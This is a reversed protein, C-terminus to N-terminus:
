NRLRRGIAEIVNVTVSNGLMKYRQTDSVLKGDQYKQTWNDPYGQLRECEIPTLRRLGIKGYFDIMSNGTSHALESKLTPSVPLGVAQGNSGDLTHAYDIEQLISDKRNSGTNSIDAVFHPSSDM